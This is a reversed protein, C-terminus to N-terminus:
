EDLGTQWPYTPLEFHDTLPAPTEDAFPAMMPNLVLDYAASAVRLCLNGFVRPLFTLAIAKPHAQKERKFTSVVEAPSGLFTIAGRGMPKVIRTALSEGGDAFVPATFVAMLVLLISLMKNKM